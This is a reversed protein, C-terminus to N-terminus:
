DVTVVECSGIGNALVFVIKGDKVKKDHKMAEDLKEATVEPHGCMNPVLPLSFAALLNEIRKADDGTLMERDIALRNAYAIGISVAEGHHYLNEGDVKFLVEVAHGFTHGYNLIRRLGGEKEDQAVVGAKVKVNEGVLYTMMKSDCKVILDANEEMWEFFEANRIVGHKVSEALGCSLERPSLTKLTAVDAYVFSPQYFAGIMNKGRPHNIGTKGGVSSDVMALLSTPVQVFQTGRKFSAAAFGALDGIVGGGLAVVSDSRELEFDFMQDYLKDLVEQRKSKEGAEVTILCTKIGANELSQQVRSAYLKGVNTDTVIAAKKQGLHYKLCEGLNDLINDGIYIPYSRNGLEVPVIKGSFKEYTKM